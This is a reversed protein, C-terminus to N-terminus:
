TSKVSERFFAARVSDLARVTDRAVIQVFHDRYARMELRFPLTRSKKRQSSFVGPEPCGVGYISTSSAEDERIATRRAEQKKRLATLPDVGNQIDEMYIVDVVQMAATLTKVIDPTDEQLKPQHDV